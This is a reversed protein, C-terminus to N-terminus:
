AGFFKRTTSTPTKGWAFFPRVMELFWNVRLTSPFTMSAACVGPAPEERADRLEVELSLSLATWSPPGGIGTGDLLLARSSSDEMGRRGMLKSVSSDAVLARELFAASGSPEVLLGTLPYKNKRKSPSGLEM